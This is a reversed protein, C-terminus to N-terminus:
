FTVAGVEIMFTENAGVRHLQARKNAYTVRVAVSGRTALKHRDYEVKVVPKGYVTKVAQFFEIVDEVTLTYYLKGVPDTKTAFRENINM